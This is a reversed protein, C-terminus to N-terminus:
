VAEVPGFESLGLGTDDMLTDDAMEDDNHTTGSAKSAESSASDNDSFPEDEAEREDWFKQAVKTCTTIMKGITKHRNQTTDAFANELRELVMELTTGESYQCGVKGKLLAWLLEIPQLDSHYPPTFLVKHGYAMGIEEAWIKQTAKIREKAQAVLERVTHTPDVELGEDQLYTIVEAKKIRGLKPIRPHYVKHYAANDM